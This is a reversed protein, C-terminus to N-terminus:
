LSMSNLIVAGPPSIETGVADNLPVNELWESVAEGVNLEEKLWFIEDKEYHDFRIDTIVIIEDPELKLNKIKKNLINIWHRGLSQGRM